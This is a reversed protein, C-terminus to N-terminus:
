LHEQIKRELLPRPVAGVVQDVVQGDKFFLFTPLSRVNFRAATRPSADVDLTGVKVRGQYEAALQEVIPAVMRCPGCWPAGFDVLALGTGHDIEAEFYGDGLALVGGATGQTGAASM